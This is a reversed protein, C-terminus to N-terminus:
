RLHPPVWVRYPRGWPDYRWEWQGPAWGPPPVEPYPAPYPYYYPYPYSYYYPFFPDFFFGGDIFFHSHSHFFPRHGGFGHGGHGGFSGHHSFGHRQADASTAPGLALALAVLALAGKM